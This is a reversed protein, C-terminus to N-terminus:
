LFQDIILDSCRSFTTTPMTTLGDNNVKIELFGSILLCASFGIWVNSVDAYDLNIFLFCIFYDICISHGDSFRASTLKGFLDVKSNLDLDNGKLKEWGFIM